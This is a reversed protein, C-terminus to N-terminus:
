AVTLERQTLAFYLNQLEHVHKIERDYGSHQFKGDNVYITIGSLFYQKQGFVDSVYFDFKLLWDETLTIPLFIPKLEQTKIDNATAEVIELVNKGTNLDVTQYFILNGIRLDNAKLVSQMVADQTLQETHTKNTKM